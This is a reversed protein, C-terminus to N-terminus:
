VKKANYWKPSPLGSYECFTEESQKKLEEKINEDFYVGDSEMDSITRDMAKYIRKKEKVSIDKDSLLKEVIVFLADRGYVKSNAPRPVYPEKEMKQFERFCGVIFIIFGIAAFASLLIVDLNEM